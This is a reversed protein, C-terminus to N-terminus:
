LVTFSTFYMLGMMEAESIQILGTFQRVSAVGAVSWSVLAM